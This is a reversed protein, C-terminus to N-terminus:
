LSYNVEDVEGDRIEVEAYVIEKVDENSNSDYFKVRFKINVDYDGDEKDLITVQVDKIYISEIDDKDEINYENDNLFKRIDRLDKEIYSVATLEAADEFYMNPSQILEKTEIMGEGVAEKVAEKLANTDIVPTKLAVQKAVENAIAVENVPEAQHETLNVGWLLLGGAVVAVIASKVWDFGNKAM